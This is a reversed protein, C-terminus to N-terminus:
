ANEQKLSRTMLETVATQPDIHGHLLAQIRESIPMEVQYNHGL